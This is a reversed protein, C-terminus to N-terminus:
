RRSRSLAALVSGSLLILALGTPEPTAAALGIIASATVGYNDRWLLYDAQTVDGDGNADGDALTATSSLGLNDRWITYDAADVVGNGNFDPLATGGTTYEVYGAITTGDPLDYNFRLDRTDLGTNYVAGLSVASASASITSSDQLYTENLLSSTQRGGLEWGNGTGNGAPFGSAGALGTFNGQVLGGSSTIEYYDLSNALDGGAISVVGTTTNVQLRLPNIAADTITEVAFGNFNVGTGDRADLGIYNQMDESWYYTGYGQSAGEYFVEYAVADGAGFGAPAFTASVAGTKNALAGQPVGQVPGNGSGWALSNNGRIALWFDAVINVTNPYTNGIFGDDNFAGTMTPNTTVSFADGTSAAESQSMGLAIAGGQQRATGAYGTVGFSVRFGGDALIQPNVFNHNVFANSTGDQVALQLENGIIQAGGGDSADDDDAGTAEWEPDLHPQTYVGDIPLSSGTNNTVGTLSADINRSDSRNFTDEFLTIACADGVCTTTVAIAILLGLLRQGRSRAVAPAAILGCALLFVATPEPAHGFLAALNAG